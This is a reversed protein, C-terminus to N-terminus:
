VLAHLVKTAHNARIPFEHSEPSDAQHTIFIPTETAFSERLDIRAFETDRLPPRLLFPAYAFALLRLCVCVFASLRLPSRLPSIALLRLCVSAFTSLRM